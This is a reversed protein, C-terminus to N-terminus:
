PGTEISLTVTSTYTAPAQSGPVTVTLNTASFNYTGMGTAVLASAIKVPTGSDITYPSATVVPSTSTTNADPTVTPATMKLSGLPLQKPTVAGDTFRSASANVKWGATLDGRLDEATFAALAATDTQSTTQFTVGTFNDAAPNTISLAGGQVTVSTNDAAFAAPSMIAFACTALIVSKIRTKFM